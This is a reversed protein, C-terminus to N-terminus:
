PKPPRGLTARYAALDAVAAATGEGQLLAGLADHAVKAAHMDGVRAAAGIAESLAAILAARPNTVASRSDDASDDEAHVDPCKQARMSANAQAAIPAIDGLQQGDIYAECPEIGERPV